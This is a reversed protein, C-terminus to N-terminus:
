DDAVRRSKALHLVTRVTMGGVVLEVRHVDSQDKSLIPLISEAKDDEDLYLPQATAKPSTFINAIPAAISSLFSSSRPRSSSGSSLRDNSASM